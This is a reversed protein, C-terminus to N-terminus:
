FYILRIIKRKAKTKYNDSRQGFIIWLNDMLGILGIDRDMVIKDMHFNYIVKMIVNEKKKQQLM